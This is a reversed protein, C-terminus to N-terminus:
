KQLIEEVITYKLTTSGSQHNITFFEDIITACDQCNELAIERANEIIKEKVSEFNENVVKEELEYIITRQLKFPLLNNKVLDRNEVVSESLAFDCNSSNEYITLGFLKIEDMVCFDGTRVREIRTDFHTIEASRYVEMTIEADAEVKQLNGESDLYFPEVLVDGKNVYEGVSVQSTGSILNIEKIKGDFNSYIPSFEGYIEEPLLKEKLNVILTQGKVIVSVFSIESFNQYLSNEIDSLTLNNKNQSFNDKIFEVIEKESLTNTGLIEYQLIYPSQFFYLIFALLIAFIAGFNLFIQLFKPLFGYNKEEVINYDLGELKKKARGRWKYPVKFSTLNKEIRRIEYIPIEKALVNLNKEVNLGKILFYTEGLM